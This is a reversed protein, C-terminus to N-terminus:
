AYVRSPLQSAYLFVLSAHLCTRGAYSAILTHPVLRTLFRTPREDLCVVQVLNIYLNNYMLSQLQIVSTTAHGRWSLLALTSGWHPHACVVRRSHFHVGNPSKRSSSFVEPWARRAVFHLNVFFTKRGDTEDISWLPVM